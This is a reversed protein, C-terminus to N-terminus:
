AFQRHFYGDQAFKLVSTVILVSEASINISMSMAVKGVVQNYLVRSLWM